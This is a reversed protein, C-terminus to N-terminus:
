DLIGRKGDHDADTRPNLKDMMSPKKEHGGVAMPASATAANDKRQQSFDESSYKRNPDMTSRPQNLHSTKGIGAGEAGPAGMRSSVEYGGGMNKQGLNEGLGSTNGGINERGVNEGHIARQSNSTEHMPKPCGEYEHLTHVQQGRLNEHGGRTGTFEELTKAPLTTTDHHVAPKHHTEHVPVTVHEVTPATTQKQIVPQIHEHVHHHIHEGSVAPAAAQSHTTEATTTTNTYKAADQELRQTDDRSSGHDVTKHEVPLVKHTHKEPLTEKHLIPQVRTQHHDQHVDRDVATTINQHHHPQVQEQTVAARSDQDVTTKHKGDMSLFSKTAQKAKEM